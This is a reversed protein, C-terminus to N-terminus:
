AACVTDLIHKDILLELRTTRLCFFGVSQQFHQFPSIVGRKWHETFSEILGSLFADNLINESRVQSGSAGSKLSVTFSSEYSRIKRLQKVSWNANHNFNYQAVM